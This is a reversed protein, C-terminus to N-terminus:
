ARTRKAEAPSVLDITDEPAGRKRGKSASPAPGGGSKLRPWSDFPSTKKNSRGEVTNLDDESPILHAKGTSRLSRGIKYSPSVPSSEIITVGGSADEDQSSQEEIDTLAEEEDQVERAEKQAETQFLRKPKISRRTLTRLPKANSGTPTHELLGLEDDDIEEEEDDEDDFRRYM